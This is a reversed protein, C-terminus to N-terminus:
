GFQLPHLVNRPVLLTTWWCDTLKILGAVIDGDAANEVIDKAIEQKAIEAPAHTLLETLIMYPHLYGPRDPLVLGQVTDLIQFAETVYNRTM